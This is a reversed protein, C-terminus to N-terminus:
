ASSPMRSRDRCEQQVARGIKPGLQKLADLLCAHDVGHIKTQVIVARSVGIRQQLKRYDGFTAGGFQAPFDPRFRADAIHLHSDCAHAPARSLPREAGASHPVTMEKRASVPTAVASLAVSCVAEILARRTLNM